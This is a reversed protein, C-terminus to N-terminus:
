PDALLGLFGGKVLWSCGFAVVAVSELWFLSHWSHPPQVAEAVAILVLAAVIV